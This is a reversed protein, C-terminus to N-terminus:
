LSKENFLFRQSKIAISDISNLDNFDFVYTRKANECWISASHDSLVSFIECVSGQMSLMNGDSDLKFKKETKSDKLKKTILVRQGSKFKKM